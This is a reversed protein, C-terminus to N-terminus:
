LLNRRALGRLTHVGNTNMKRSHTHTHTNPLFYCLLCFVSAFDTTRLDSQLMFIDSQQQNRLPSYHLEPYPLVCVICYANTRVLCAFVSRYFALCGFRTKRTCLENIHYIMSIQKQTFHITQNHKHTPPITSAQKNTFARSEDPPPSESCGLVSDRKDMVIEWVQKRDIHSIRRGVSWCTARRVVGNRRSSSRGLASCLTPPGADPWVVLQGHGAQEADHLLDPVLVGRQCQQLIGQREARLPIESAAVEQAHLRRGFPRDGGFPDPTAVFFVNHVVSDCQLPSM